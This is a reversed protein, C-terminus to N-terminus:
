CSDISTKGPFKQPLTFDVEPLEPLRAQISKHITQLGPMIVGGHFVQNRDMYDVTCATGADIVIVSSNSKSYAGLCSLFRDIGLTEPTEYDLLNSPIQGHNFVILVEEPILEKLEDLTAKVVSAVYVKENGLRHDDYWKFFDSPSDLSVVKPDFVDNNLVVAKISTNGIDVFICRNM